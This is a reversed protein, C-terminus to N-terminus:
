QHRRRMDGIVTQLARDFLQGDNLVVLEKDKISWALQDLTLELVKKGQRDVFVYRGVSPLIAALRCRQSFTDKTWQLWAGQSLRRAQRSAPDAPSLIERVPEAGSDKEGAAANKEVQPEPTLAQALLNEDEAAASCAQNLDESVELRQHQNRVHTEIAEFLSRSQFSDMGVDALDAEMQRVLLTLEAEKDLESCERLIEALQKALDLKEAWAVSDAGKKLFVMQLVRSWAQRLLDQGVGPLGMCTEGMVDAVAERAQTTLAEGRVQDVTRRAVLEARRQERDLFKKLQQHLETFLTVDESFEDQVRQVIMELQLLLTDQKCAQSNEPEEWGLACRAMENLLQRAPHSGAQLFAADALAVKLLPIQMRSLVARMPAALNPDEWIYEFLMHVLNIINRDLQSVQGQSLMIQSLKESLARADAQTQLPPQVQRQFKALIQGLDHTSLAPEDVKSHLTPILADDDGILQHLEGLTHGQVQTDHHVKTRRTNLKARRERSIQRQLDPLVGQQAMRQNLLNYASGLQQLVSREFIKLLLLKIKITVALGDLQAAFSQILREADCPLREQNDEGQKGLLYYCRRWLHDLSQQHQQRHAVVMAKIAVEEELAEDSVLQVDEVFLEESDYVNAGDPKNAQPKQLDVFASRLTDFLSQALNAKAMRLTRMAEFYGSQELNNTAIEAREFLTDDSQSFFQSVGQQLVKSLLLHVAQMGRPLREVPKHVPEELVRQRLKAKAKSPKPGKLPIVNDKSNVM